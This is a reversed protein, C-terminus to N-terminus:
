VLLTLNRHVQNWGIHQYGNTTRADARLVFSYACSMPPRWGGSAPIWRNEFGQWNGMSPEYSEAFLQTSQNDGYTARLSIRRLNGEADHATIRLRIGDPAAGMEQIACAEVERGRHQISEIVVRPLHNDIFLRLIQSPAPVPTTADNRFFLMRFQHLGAPFSTTPFQVLLDPISYEHAPNPLTYGGAM